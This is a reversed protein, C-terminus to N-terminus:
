RLSPSLEKVYTRYNDETTAFFQLAYTMGDSEDVEMLKLLLHKEFFGSSMVEPIHHEKMWILWEEHIDHSVAFTINYLIM